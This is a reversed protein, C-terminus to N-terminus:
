VLYTLRLCSYLYSQSIDKKPPAIAVRVVIDLSDIDVWAVWFSLYRRSGMLRLGPSSDFTHRNSLASDLSVRSLDIMVGSGAEQENEQEVQYDLKVM